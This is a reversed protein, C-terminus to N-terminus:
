AHFAQFITSADECFTSTMQGRRDSERDRVLEGITGCIAYNTQLNPNTKYMARRSKAIVSVIDRARGVAQGSLYMMAGLM